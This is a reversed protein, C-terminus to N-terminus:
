DKDLMFLALVPSLLVAMAALLVLAAGGIICEFVNIFYNGIEKM